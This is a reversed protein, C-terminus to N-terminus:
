VMVNGVSSDCIVIDSHPIFLNAVVFWYIMGTSAFKIKKLSIVAVHKPM